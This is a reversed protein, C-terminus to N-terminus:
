VIYMIRLYIIYYIYICMYHVINPSQPPTSVIVSTATETRHPPTSRNRPRAAAARSQTVRTVISATLRRRRRWRGGVPACRQLTTPGIGTYTSDYDSNRCVTTMVAALM